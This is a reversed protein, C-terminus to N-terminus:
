QLGRVELDGALVLAPWSLSALPYGKQEGETPATPEGWGHSSRARAALGLAHSLTCALDAHYSPAHSRAEQRASVKLKLEYWLRPSDIWVTLPFVHPHVQPIM